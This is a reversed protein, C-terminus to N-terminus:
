PALTLIALGALGAKLFVRKIILILKNGEPFKARIEDAVCQLRHALCFLFFILNPWFVEAYLSCCLVIFNIGEQSSRYAV